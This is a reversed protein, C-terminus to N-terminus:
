LETPSFDLTPRVSSLLTGASSLEKPSWPLFQDRAKELKSFSGGNEPEMKLVLLSWSVRVNSRELGSEGAKRENRALRTIVCLGGLYDLIM